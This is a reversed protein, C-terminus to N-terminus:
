VVSSKCNRDVSNPTYFDIDKLNNQYSSVSSIDYSNLDIELYNTLKILNTLGYGITNNQNIKLLNFINQLHVEVALISGLTTGLAKAIPELILINREDKNYCSINTKTLSLRNFLGIKKNLLETTIQEIINGILYEMIVSKESYRGSLTTILSRCKLSQLAELLNARSIFPIIDKELEEITTWDRNVALWYLITKELPDLRDFQLDLLEQIGGFVAINRALFDEIKGDFLYQIPNSIIKVHLPNCDYFKCLNQKQLESGSLGKAAIAGLSAELSGQLFLSRVALQMGELGALFSPKERSTLLLCSNHNTSGIKILLNKYNEYGYRYKKGRKGPELISDLNDLILLCRYERLYKLLTNINAKKERKQSLCAVLESLLNELTLGDGLSRWIIFHFQTKIKQALEIGLTTKGIGAMGLITILRCKDKIIWRDLTALEEQRGYFSGLDIAQGWDIEIPIIQQEDSSDLDEAKSYDSPNLKLNFAQFYKELTKRDVPYKRDRVKILTNPCLGTIQKLDELTYPHKKNTKIALQKQAEQLRHCGRDSLMIGRKRKLSRPKQEM